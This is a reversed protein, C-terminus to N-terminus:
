RRYRLGSGFNRISWACQDGAKGNGWRGGLRTAGKGKRFIGSNGSRDNSQACLAEYRSETKSGREGSSLGPLPYIDLHFRGLCRIRSNHIFNHDGMNSDLDILKSATLPCVERNCIFDYSVLPNNTGQHSCAFGWVFQTSSNAKFIAVATSWAVFLILNLGFNILLGLRGKTESLKDIFFIAM